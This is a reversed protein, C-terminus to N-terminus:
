HHEHQGGQARLHVRLVELAEVLHQYTTQCQHLVTRTHPDLYDAYQQQLAQGCDRITQLAASMSHLLAPLETHPPCSFLSDQDAQQAARAAAQKLQLHSYRQATARKVMERVHPVNFPKPIYDFARLRLAELVTEYSAYGTVLIVEIDPDLAKIKELVRIGSLGPMRLDLLVIDVPNQEIVRLAQEGEVAVLVRYDSKLIARLSERPGIEDDVILVTTQGSVAKMGKEKIRCV